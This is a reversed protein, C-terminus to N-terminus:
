GVLRALRYLRAAVRLGSSRVAKENVEFRVRQGEQYFNLLVGQEGFGATDGVTLIPRTGTRELVRGLDAPPRSTIFLVQCDPLHDLDAVERVEARRGLIPEAGAQRELFPTLPSPGLVGIVFPAEPDAFATEPWEVFLTFRRIFEAKLEHEPVPPDDRTQAGATAALLLLLALVPAM